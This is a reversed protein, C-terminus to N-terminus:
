QSQGRIGKHNLRIYVGVCILASLLSGLPAALGMPFLTDPYLVSAAYAGPIRVLVIAAINHLFSVSSKKYACFYGSFCFHVGAIACDFVYARLYQAGMLIVCSESNAFLAIIAGTRIYCIGTFITGSLLCIGIAYYLTRRAREHRGAGANQAAITSVASLMSSPVLFMFGILKEVIGVAAAADVGRRNAIVTITLFAIQICGDQVAIPFGVRLIDKFMRKEIKFSIKGIYTAARAFKSYLLATIVSIAQSIVTAAAAGTAGMDFPGIFLYDLGINVIGALAVFCMPTKSDGMGRFISSIVNYATIFIIGTFCIRLYSGSEDWAEAPVSLARMIANTFLLLAATAIVAFAAFIIITNGIARRVSKNDKAGVARSIIVTTGMALGVTIVTIMHMVQSGVSVATISPAGNFRGIIYLDALGYFTQLFCAVLYPVSFRLLNKLISGQTFNNNIVSNM